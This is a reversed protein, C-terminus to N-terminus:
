ISMVPNHPSYDLFESSGSLSNEIQVCREIEFDWYRGTGGTANFPDEVNWLVEVRGTLQLTRGLSFDPILLGARPNVEFNGLTNFMSNGTYDPVRLRTAGTVQIFGPNGGRHSADLGSRPHESAVFLTDARTIWEQQEHNLVTGVRASSAIQQDPNPRYNRRQIYQPCNPYAKEVDVHLQSDASFSVQGNVRLRARSRLDIVLIGIRADSALNQWLPDGEFRLAQSLDIDISNTEASLFGTSGVLISAWPNRQEDVTGVVIFPQKKAFKIAGPVITSAIVRGNSRAQALAGARTQVALEGEHYVDSITETASM